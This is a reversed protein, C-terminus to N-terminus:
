NNLPMSAHWHITAHSNYNMIKIHSAGHHAMPGSGYSVYIILKALYNTQPPPNKCM